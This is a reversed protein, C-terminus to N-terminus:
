FGSYQQMARYRDPNSKIEAHFQEVASNYLAPDMDKGGMGQIFEFYRCDKTVEMTEAYSMPWLSSPQARWPGMTVTQRLCYIRGPKFDILAVVSKGGVTVVYHPGPQVDTIFWTKGTTDGILKGDIYNHFVSESAFFTDRVIMLLAKDSKATLDFPKDVPVM